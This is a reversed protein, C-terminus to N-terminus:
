IELFEDEENDEVMEWINADLETLQGLTLKHLAITISTIWQEGRAQDDSVRGLEVMGDRKREVARVRGRGPGGTLCM